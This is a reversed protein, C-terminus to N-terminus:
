SKSTARSGTTAGDQRSTRMPPARSRTYVMRDINDALLSGFERLPRLEQGEEELAQMVSAKRQTPSALKRDCVVILTM